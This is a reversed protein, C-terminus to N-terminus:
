PWGRLALASEGLIMREGEPRAARHHGAVGQLIEALGVHDEADPAAEGAVAHGGSDWRVLRENVGGVVLAVEVLAVGGVVWKQAVGLEHQTLEDLGDLALSAARCPRSFTRASSSRTRAAHSASHVDVRPEASTGHSGVATMASNM